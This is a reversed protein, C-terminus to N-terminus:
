IRDIQGISSTRKQGISSTRKQDKLAQALLERGTEEIDFKDFRPVLRNEQRKEEKTVLRIPYTYGERLREDVLENPVARMRYTGVGDPRTDVLWTIPIVSDPDVSGAPEVKARKETRLMSVSFVLGIGSATFTLWWIDFYISVIQIVIFALLVASVFVPNM